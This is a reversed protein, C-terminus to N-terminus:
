DAHSHIRNSIGTYKQEMAIDEANGKGKKKRYKPTRKIV